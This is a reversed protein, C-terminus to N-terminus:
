LCTMGEPLLQTPFPAKRAEEIAADIEIKFEQTLRDRLEPSVQKELRQLPDKAKWEAHKTEDRIGLNVDSNPGCHELVRYTLCEIFSPGKGERARSVAEQAAQYVAVADNGDVQVSPVGFGAARKYIPANPQRDKIWTNTALGNNECVFVVPLKRLLAFMLSEQFIGEETAGDGFCSVAVRAQKRSKFTFGAGVAHAQAAAVLATTGAFGKELDILHMSGGFGKSCGNAKGYFENIMRGLHGGKALYWGHSRYYAFVMDEDTLAACVGAPNAEQGTCLHIPTKMEGKPYHFAVTEEVMRIKLVKSYLHDLLKQDVTTSM